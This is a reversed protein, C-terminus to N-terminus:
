ERRLPITKKAQTCSNKEKKSEKLAFIKLLITLQTGFIAFYGSKERFDGTRKRWQFINLLNAGFEIVKEFPKLQL